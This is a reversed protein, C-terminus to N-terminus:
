TKSKTKMLDLQAEMESVTLCGGMSGYVFNIPTAWNVETEGYYQLYNDLDVNSISTATKSSSKQKKELKSKAKEAQLKAKAIPLEKEARESYFKTLDEIEVEFPIGAKKLNELELSTLELRLFNESFIGGCRLDIGIEPLKSLEQDTPNYIKIRKSLNETQSFVALTNILFLVVLLKLKM